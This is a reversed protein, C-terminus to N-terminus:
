ARELKRLIRDRADQWPSVPQRGAESTGRRREIERLWAEQWGEDPPGDVSALLEAAVELREVDTLGMAEDILRRAANSM